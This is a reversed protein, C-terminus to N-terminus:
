RHEGYKKYYKKTNDSNLKDVWEGEGNEPEEQQETKEEGGEEAANLAAVELDDKVDRRENDGDARSNGKTDQEGKDVDAYSSNNGYENPM